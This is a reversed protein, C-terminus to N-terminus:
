TMYQLEDDFFLFDPSTSSSSSRSSSSSSKGTDLRALAAAAGILHRAASFPRCCLLAVRAALLFATVRMGRGVNRKQDGDDGGSGDGMCCEHMVLLVTPPDILGSNLLLLCLNYLVVCDQWQSRLMSQIFSLVSRTDSQTQPEHNPNQSGATTPSKTATLMILNNSCNAAACDEPSLSTPRPYVISTSMFFLQSGFRSFAHM